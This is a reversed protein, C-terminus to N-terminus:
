FDLERDWLPHAREPTALSLDYQFPLVADNRLNGLVRAIEPGDPCRWNDSEADSVLHRLRRENHRKRPEIAILLLQILLGFAFLFQL